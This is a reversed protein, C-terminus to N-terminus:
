VRIFKVKWTMQNQAANLTLTAKGEKKKLIDKISGTVVGCPEDENSGTFTRGSVVNIYPYSSEIVTNGSKYKHWGVLLDWHYGGNIDVYVKNTIHFLKVTDLRSVWQWTGHFAGM